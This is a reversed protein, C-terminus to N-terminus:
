AAPSRQRPLGGCGGKAGRQQKLWDAADSTRNPTVRSGVWLGIRFPETNWTQPDARRIVEAACILAAARQFQQITLLRLTYRMLVAVGGASSLGGQDPQLRRIALTYATLGLYAETKGGGTPFWLLDATATSGAAREPHAPDTLSPLNLLLFALQFPRWSRNKRIDAAAVAAEFALDKDKQRAEAAIIHVRQLHMARNAFRFARRAREDARILEIGAEIRDAARRAAAIVDRADAAYQSLHREPVALTAEQADIWDRYATVLPTLGAQLADDAVEALDKMDLMLGALGPLDQDTDAGPVDTFPIEYSPVSETRVEVARMPDGPPSTVHVAAGHGVAFEPTYRHAMALRRQESRDAQDGGSVSEPRPLFAPEGAPTALKLEVQFLWYADGRGSPKHQANILFLSLLWDGHHRRARGRLIV